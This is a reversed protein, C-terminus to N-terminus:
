AAAKSHLAQDNIKEDALISLKEDTDKEEQLSEEFLAAVEDKELAQCLAIMSGYMTMEHHEVMQAAIILAADRVAGKECEQFMQEGVDIMTQTISCHVDRIALKMMDYAQELREIQMETEALHQAFGSKLAENTAAAKMKPLAETIQKEMDYAYCMLDHLLEKSNKVPM